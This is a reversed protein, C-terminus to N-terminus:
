LAWVYAVVLFCWDDTWAVEHVQYNAAISESHLSSHGREPVILFCWDVTCAVEQVCNNGAFPSLTCVRRLM